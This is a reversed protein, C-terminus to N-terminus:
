PLACTVADVFGGAQLAAGIVSWIKEDGWTQVDRQPRYGKKLKFSLNDVSIMNDAFTLAFALHM